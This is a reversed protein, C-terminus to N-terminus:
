IDIEQTREFGILDLKLRFLVIIRCFEIEPVIAPYEDM